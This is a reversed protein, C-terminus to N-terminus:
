QQMTTLIEHHWPTDGISHTCHNVLEFDQATTKVSFTGFPDCRFEALTTRIPGAVKWPRPTAADEGAEVMADDKNATTELDCCRPEHVEACTASVVVASSSAHHGLPEPFVNTDTTGSDAPKRISATRPSQITNHALRTQQEHFNQIDKLRRQRHYARMVHVRAKSRSTPDDVAVFELRGAKM